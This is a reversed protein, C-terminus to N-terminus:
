GLTAIPLGSELRHQARSSADDVLRTSDIQRQEEYFNNTLDTSTDADLPVYANLPFPANPLTQPVHTETQPLTM